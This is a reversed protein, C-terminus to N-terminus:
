HAFVKHKQATDDDGLLRFYNGRKRSNSNNVDDSVVPETDLTINATTDITNATLDISNDMASETTARQKKKQPSCGPDHNYTHETSKGTGNEYVFTTSCSPRQELSPHM